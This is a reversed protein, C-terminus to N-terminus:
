NHSITANDQQKLKLKTSTRFQSARPQSRYAFKEIEAPKAKTNYLISDPISPHNCSLKEELTRSQFNCGNKKLETSEENSSYALKNLTVEGSSNDNQVPWPQFNEDNEQVSISSQKRIYMSEMIIKCDSREKKMSSSPEGVNFGIKPLVTENLAKSGDKVYLRDVYFLVRNLLHVNSADAALVRVGLSASPNICFPCFITTFVCGDEECWVGRQSFCRNSDLQFFKKDIFTIDCSLVNISAPPKKFHHKAMSDLTGNEHDCSLFIKSLTVCLGKVLFKYEPLGLPNKCALCSIHLKAEKHLANSSQPMIQKDSRFTKKEMELNEAFCNGMSSALSQDPSESIGSDLDQMPSNGISELKDVKRKKLNYSNVSLFSSDEEAHISVASLKEPTVAFINCKPTTAGDDVIVSFDHSSGPTFLPSSFSKVSKSELDDDISGKLFKNTEGAQKNNLPTQPQLIVSPDNVLCTSMSSFQHLEDIQRKNSGMKVIQYNSTMITQDGPSNVLNSEKFPQKRDNTDNLDSLDNCLSDMTLNLRHKVDQFFRQLDKMSDDFNNCIKISNRLWKSVYALNRQEEYREDLLIIAGYDFRHRICRGAAQNLARFAQHCYWDSGSLLNKSSKYTNNYKKKLMVQIDNRNPFPIGVIVVVRANDNSFDIGESVKGRCVALFAAGRDSNQAIDKNGLCKPGARIKRPILKGKGSILDYYGRLLLEFEDTSGRPEIFIEKHANLKSWQGTQCWRARLKELLKYSPFFVLAGGPVNKCIKELTLGLSDQFAYSDATKYSANLQCNDAGSPIVAAWLQSETNIVHPAEMCVDFQVGLESSFSSMPSLTGSTLIVSLSLEAIDRFVVAPNLCWMSLSVTWASADNSGDRKVYRQLALQYDNLNCGNRAFFYSLASFLGELAILSMGSLHAEGPIADSAAKIAKAACEQLVQFYQQSIGAHQLEQKAKNGTWHSIYHEFECKQLADKRLSVWGIIGQIVDYLPRYIMVVSDSMCLQGLEAQLSHLAEEEIDVSGGERAMDEINHAEDLILIGGKIDIDMARRVIPNIIYSYPCFVLQAEAALIQAAFYSCGKVQRGIRALDEIDHVELCGGIQVSPHGKVKNANKFEYCGGSPDKLLLKCVEDVNDSDCVHQNTCYHKRSALVAMPVRYSTKRYERIVQSIQSHTRSAYYITPSILKRQAKVKAAHTDKEPNGSSGSEPIFGGGHLFPDSAAMTPTTATSVTQSLQRQSQHRQWALSSCLLSLTKGTGTPSELLANCHGQRLSRDLTSIVRSM